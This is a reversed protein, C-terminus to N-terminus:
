RTRHTRAGKRHRAKTDPSASTSRCPSRARGRAFVDRLRVLCKRIPWEFRVLRPALLHMAHERAREAHEHEREGNRRRPARRPKSASSPMAASAAAIRCIGRCGDRRVRERAHERDDRDCQREDRRDSEIARRWPANRTATSATTTNWAISPMHVTVSSNFGMTTIPWRSPPNSVNESSAYTASCSVVVVPRGDVLPASAAAGDHM